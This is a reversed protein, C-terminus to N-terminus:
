YQRSGSKRNACAFGRDERNVRQALERACYLLSFFAAAIVLSGCDFQLQESVEISTHYLLCHVDALRLCYEVSPFSFM